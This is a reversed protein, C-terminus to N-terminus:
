VVDPLVPEMSCRCNPGMGAHYRVGNEGAIPPDDWRVVKGELKKHEPRVDADGATRWIYAESGIHLSRAETLAGAVRGTETRAILEARGRTVHGTKMIEKALEGARSGTTMAETAIRHVRKAAELPLSTILDVQEALRQRMIAGTPANRIEQRLARGIDRGAEAWAREDRQAVERIFRDAAATAWPRIMDAYRNLTSTLESLNTVEGRPAFGRVINGVQTAVQRLQRAYSEEARRAKAFRLRTAQRRQRASPARAAM